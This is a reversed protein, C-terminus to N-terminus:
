LLQRSFMEDYKVHIFGLLLALLGQSYVNQKQKKKHFTFFNAVKNTRQLNKGCM